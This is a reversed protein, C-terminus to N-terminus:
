VTRDTGMAGVLILPQAFILLKNYRNRCCDELLLVTM